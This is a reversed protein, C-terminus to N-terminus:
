IVRGQSRKQSFNVGNKEEYKLKCAPGERQFGDVESGNRSCPRAEQLRHRSWRHVSQVWLGPRKKQRQFLRLCQNRKRGVSNKHRTFKHQVKTQLLGDRGQSHSTTPALLGACSGLPLITEQFEQGSRAHARSFHQKLVGQVKCPKERNVYKRKCTEAVTPGQELRM